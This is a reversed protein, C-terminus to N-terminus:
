QATIIFDVMLQYQDGTINLPPEIKLDVSHLTLGQAGFNQIIAQPTASLPVYFPSMADKLSFLTTPVRLSGLSSAPSLYGSTRASIEYPVNAEVNILYFGP